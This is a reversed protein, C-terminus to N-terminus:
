DFDFSVRDVWLHYTEACMEGYDILSCLSFLNKNKNKKEYKFDRGGVFRFFMEGLGGINPQAFKIKNEKWNNTQSKETHENELWFFFNM